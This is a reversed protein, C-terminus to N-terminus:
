NSWRKSYIKRIIKEEKLFNFGHFMKTENSINIFKRIAQLEDPLISLKNDRGPLRKNITFHKEIMIPDYKLSLVSAYINETHDSFGIKDFYKRLYKIKPLNIQNFKCPYTSVCHFLILKKKFKNKKTLNIIKKTDNLNSAGLSVIVKKFNKLAYLILNTDRNHASPIKIIDKQFKKLLNVGHKNVVSSFLKIGIKNAYKFLSEYKKENLQAKTYINRRGDKDWPGKNLYKTDFIQTKVYDAGCNKASKIMQKAIKLNGMHNWGIEAILKTM